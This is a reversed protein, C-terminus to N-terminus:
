SCSTLGHCSLGALRRWPVAAAAPGEQDPLRAASPLGKDIVDTTYIIRRVDIPFAFFPIVATWHRRWSMAIAPYKRGWEGGAFAV